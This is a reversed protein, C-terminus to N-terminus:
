LDASIDLYSTSDRIQLTFPVGSTIGLGTTSFAFFLLNGSPIISVGTPQSVIAISSAGFGLPSVAYITGSLTVTPSSIRLGNPLSVLCLIQSNTSAFGFGVTCFNGSFRKHYYECKALQTAYDMDPQPLLHWVGDSDKYGLTQTDGEEWKNAIVRLKSSAKAYVVHQMEGATTIQMRLTGNPIDMDQTFKDPTEIRRTQWYLGSDTFVSHTWTKGVFEGLEKADNAPNLRQLIWRSGDANASNDLLVSGDEQIAISLGNQLRWSDLTVRSGSDIPYSYEIQGRQNVQFFPNILKTPRVGAGLNALARQPSDAQGLMSAATIAKDIEEGSWRSMYYGQPTESSVLDFREM